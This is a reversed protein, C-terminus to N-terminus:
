PDFWQGKEIVAAIHGLELRQEVHGPFATEPYPLRLWKWIRPGISAPPETFDVFQAWPWGAVWDGFRAILADVFDDAEVGGIGLDQFIAAHPHCQGAKARGASIAIAVIEPFVPSM